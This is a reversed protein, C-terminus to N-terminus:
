DGQQYWRFRSGSWYLLGTAAETKEILIGDGILMPPTSETAGQAVIAKKYVEWHDFFSWDDADGGSVAYKVGAGIIIPHTGHQTTLWIAIGRKRDDRRSILLAYDPQGDGDFDAELYEPQLWTGVAFRSKFWRNSRAHQLTSPLSNIQGAIAATTVLFFLLLRWTAM